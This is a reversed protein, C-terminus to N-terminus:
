KRPALLSDKGRFNQLIRDYTKRSERERYDEASDFYGHHRTQHCPLDVSPMVVKGGASRLMLSWELDANRYFKAKPPVPTARAAVVDVAMLYSLVADVEGPESADVFTRWNDATDVNVGRWGALVVGENAADEIAHVLPSIADGTLITSIDMIVHVRAPDALLLFNLANAWGVDQLKASIHWVAIRSHAAAFEEALEGAGDVNGVDLLNLRTHAPTHALLADICERADDPWGDILLDVSVAGQEIARDRDLRIESLAAFQTFPPKASLDFGTPTDAVLWGADAIKARLEDALAWDKSQRAAARQEALAVVEAPVSTM